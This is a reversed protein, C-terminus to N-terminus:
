WISCVAEVVAKGMVIEALEDVYCFVADPSSEIFATWAPAVVGLWEGPPYRVYLMGGSCEPAPFDEQICHVSILRRTILFRSIAGEPVPYSSAQQGDQQHLRLEDQQYALINEVLKLLEKDSAFLDAISQEDNVLRENNLKEHEVVLGLAEVTLDKSAELGEFKVWLVVLLLALVVVAVALILVVAKM